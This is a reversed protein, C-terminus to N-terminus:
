WVKRSYEIGAPPPSVRRHMDRMAEIQDRNLEVKDPGLSLVVRRAGVIKVFTEYPIETTFVEAALTEDVRGDALKVASGPIEERTWGTSFTGSAASEWVRTGDANVVLMCAGPCSAEDDSFLTFRLTVASPPEPTRARTTFSPSLVLSREPRKVLILDKTLFVNLLGDSETTAASGPMTPPAYPVPPPDDVTALCGGVGSAPSGALPSFLTFMVFALNVFLGVKVKPNYLWEM